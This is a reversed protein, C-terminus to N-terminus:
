KARRLEQRLRVAEACQDHGGAVLISLREGLGREAVALARERAREARAERRADRNKRKGGGKKRTLPDRGSTITSSHQM